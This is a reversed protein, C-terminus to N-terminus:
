STRRLSCIAVAVTPMCIGEGDPTRAAAAPTM